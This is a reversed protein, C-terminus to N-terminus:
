CGVWALRVEDRDAQPLRAVAPGGVSTGAVHQMVLVGRTSGSWVWPVAFRADAGLGARFRRAFRAEREYDCEDALEAKM